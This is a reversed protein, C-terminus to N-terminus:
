PTWGALRAILWWMAKAARLRGAENLHGGDDSYGPYMAEYGGEIILNGLPDHSEIAAIDYLPKDNAACFNRVQTNYADRNDYGSTTIPMTWWVFIKGPYTAELNLMAERYYTWQVATDIYCFKMHFVDYENTHDAVWAVFQDVKEQWGPNGRNHWDWHPYDYRIADMAKLDEMGNKINVGVSAHELSMNLARAANLATDPIMDVDLTMHNVLIAQIPQAALTINKVVVTGNSITMSRITSISVSPENYGCNYGGILNILIERDFALDEEYVQEQLLMTDGSLIKAPGDYVAQITEYYSLQTDVVRVPPDNPCNDCVEGIGDGDSDAQDFNSTNPCNDIYDTIGDNDYDDTQAWTKAPLAAFLFISFVLVSTILNHISNRM